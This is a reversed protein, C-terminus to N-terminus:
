SHNIMKIVEDKDLPTAEVSWWANSQYPTCLWSFRNYWIGDHYTNVTKLLAADEPKQLRSLLVIGLHLPWINNAILTNLHPSFRSNLTAFLIPREKNNMGKLLGTYAWSDPLTPLYAGIRAGPLIQQIHDYLYHGIFTMRNELVNFYDNFQRHKYLYKIRQELTTAKAADKHHHVYYDWAYDSFDMLNDYLGPQMKTKTHQAYPQVHYMEFDFFIGSLPLGNGITPEQWKQVFAKLADVVQPQWFTELDLPSPLAPLHQGYIMQVPHNVPIKEYNGTLDLGVFIQPLTARNDKFVDKLASSLLGVHHLYREQQEFRISLNSSLLYEEPNFRIWLIEIHADKIAQALCLAQEQTLQGDPAIDMWACSLSHPESRIKNKQELIAANHLPAPLLVAPPEDQLQNITALYFESLTQYLAELMQESIYPENPTFYWPEGIDAFAVFPVKTICLKQQTHPNICLLALPLANTVQNNQKKIPLSTIVPINKYLIPAMEQLLKLHSSFHKQPAALSTFYDYNRASPAKLFLEIANFIDQRYLPDITTLLTSCTTLFQTAQTTQNEMTPMVLGDPFIMGHAFALGICSNRKMSYLRLKELLQKILLHDKQQVAYGNWIVFLADYDSLHKKHVDYYSCYTTDFGVSVTLDLFLQYRYAQNGTTDIVLLRTSCISSMFMMTTCLLRGFTM